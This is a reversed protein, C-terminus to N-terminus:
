THSWHAPRGELYARLGEAPDNHSMLENLYQAELRPLEEELARRVPGRAARWAARVAVASRPALHEGFWRELALEPEADCVDALGMAQAELGSVARGTVVLDVAGRGGVRWPLLVAAVPPFVGLTVEPVALRADPSCFVWGCALALELGGGLCQGRVLAATPVGVGELTRFLAHFSPLMREVAGPLHEPISAGFSFHRGAGRLVVLKLAPDAGLGGLAAALEGILVADLVNGKPHDLWVTALQGAHAREVRVRPPSM